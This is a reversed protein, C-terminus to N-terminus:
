LVRCSPSSRCCRLLPDCCRCLRTIYGETGGVQGLIEKRIRADTGSSGPITLGIPFFEGAGEVDRAIEEAKRNAQMEFQALTPILSVDIKQMENELKAFRPWYGKIEGDSLQAINSGSLEERLGEYMQSLSERAMKRADIGERSAELVESRFARKYGNRFRRRFTPSLFADINVPETKSVDARFWATPQCGFFHAMIRGLFPGYLTRYPHIVLPWYADAVRQKSSRNIKEM